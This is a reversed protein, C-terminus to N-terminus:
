NQQVQADVRALRRAYDETSEGVAVNACVAM